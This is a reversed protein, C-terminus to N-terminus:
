GEEPPTWKWLEEGNFLERKLLAEIKPYNSIKDHDHSAELQAKLVDGQKLWIIVSRIITIGRGDNEEKQLKELGNALEKISLKEKKNEFLEM